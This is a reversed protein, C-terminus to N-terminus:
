GHSRGYEEIIGWQTNNVVINNTVLMNSTGDVYVGGYVNNFVTNNAVTVASRCPLLAARLRRLSVGRQEV